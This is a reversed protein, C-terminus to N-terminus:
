ARPPWDPPSMSLREVTPGGALWRKAARQLTGTEGTINAARMAAALNNHIISFAGAYADYIRVQDPTLQHELLEYELTDLRRERLRRALEHNSRSSQSFGNAHAFVVLGIANHVCCLTAHGRDGVAIQTCATAIREAHGGQRLLPM